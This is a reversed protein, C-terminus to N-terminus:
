VLEGAHRVHVEYGLCGLDWENNRRGKPRCKPALNYTECSPIEDLDIFHSLHSSSLPHAHYMNRSTKNKCFLLYFVMFCSVFDINLILMSSLVKFCLKQLLQSLSHGGTVWPTCIHENWLSSSNGQVPVYTHLTMQLLFISLTGLCLGRHYSVSRTLQPQSTSSGWSSSHAGMCQCCFPFIQGTFMRAQSLPM